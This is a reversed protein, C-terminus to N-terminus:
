KVSYVLEPPALLGHSFLVYHLTFGKGGTIFNAPGTTRQFPTQHLPGFTNRRTLILELELTGAENLDSTVDVSFPHWAVMKGKAGVKACAAEFAPLHLSVPKNGAAARAEDQTVPLEYRISGSYFPLGQTTVDGVQLKEPLATITKVHGNLSVGFNGLLYLAELNLDERFDVEQELINEGAKLYEKPLGFRKFAIDIWMAGAELKLPHGNLKLRFQEPAELCLDVAGTPISDIFFTFLLKVRGKMEPKPEYKAKFWPQVMEGGRTKFGFYKRVAQDARLIETEPNMPNADIQWQAMDLVCVNSEGLKYNYPGKLPVVKSGSLEPKAELGKIELPSLVYLKEGSPEFSTSLALGGDAKASQVRYRKGTACDWESVNGDATIKLTAEQFRKESNVNLAAIILRDGDKRVQCFIDAINKGTKSDVVQVAPKSYTRVLNVLPEQEFSVKDAKAALLSAKGSPLADVMAPPEGAFVVKGGAAIFEELVKLTTSRITTMKGVVVTQYSAEGVKLLPVKGAKHSVAYLRGLMEEDAYDFDIQNGQLWHFLDKYAKEVALISPDVTALGKAWGSYIQAWISEVPNIVLVDCVPNGQFLLYGMRAYYTEVYSYDKWWSSQHLISAPYDRKAEGEMTYWSLHPCRLNIGFLAQWDGIAKYTQFNAQWGTVGNLESLIWKKGTQRAASQVQKAIWYNVNYQTLIDVGPYDMYEYARMLSGQVASQSSLTDEHLFHGTFIMNNKKCWDAYPKVWNGLFLQQLTEMYHWKVQAVQKGEPHLFLEPLKDVIDYGYKAKFYEPLKGTWPTQKLFDRSPNSFATMVSQRHPEDTFIGRISKGLRGGCEKKYRDHTLRIFEHTADPNLRDVDTYGNFFNDELRDVVDFVLITKNKFTEAPTARSLRQYSRCNLGEVDGSFAALITESWVFESAPLSKMNLFKARYLPNKCVLGGVTGSPWRDEDYLWSELGLKEGEDACARTLDFWQEGLYETKLGTRSHMFYGGFGMEKMVHVQRLLEEKKLDGNWSWFPKARFAAGPEQFGAYLRELTAPQSDKKFSWSILWPLALVGLIAPVIKKMVM